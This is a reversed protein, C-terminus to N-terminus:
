GKERLLRAKERAWDRKKETQRKDHLKKGKALGLELKAIGRANFYLKLPVIAMGGRNVLGIWRDLERRHMLIRRPRRPAHNFRNGQQYEPIYANILLLDGNEESAYAESINAKGERLSKVETGTLELGAELTEEIFFNHRAKRNAAIVRFNGSAASTKSAM